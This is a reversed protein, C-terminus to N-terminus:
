EPAVSGSSAQDGFGDGAVPAVPLAEARISLSDHHDAYNVLQIAVPEGGTGEHQNIRPLVTTALKLLMEKKYIGFKKSKPTEKLVEIIDQLALMRVEKVTDHDYVPKRAM